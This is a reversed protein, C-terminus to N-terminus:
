PLPLEPARPFDIETQAVIAAANTFTKLAVIALVDLIEADTVGAARLRALETTAGHGGTRVVRRAFALLADERATAGTGRRAAVTEEPTLGSMKGLATHASVCYGCGNLESVHLNLQEVERRTLSGEGLATDWGLLGRLTHPAHAITAFLNPVKGLGARLQELIPRAAEPATAPTTPAIRNTM